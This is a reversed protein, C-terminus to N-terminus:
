WQEDFLKKIDDMRKWDTIEPCNKIRKEVDQYYIERINGNKYIELISTPPHDFGIPSNCDVLLEKQETLTFIGYQQLKDIFECAELISINKVKVGADPFTVSNSDEDFYATASTNLWILETRDNKITFIKFWGHDGDSRQYYVVSLESDKLINMLATDERHYHEYEALTSNPIFELSSNPTFERLNNKHGCGLLIILTIGFLHKM